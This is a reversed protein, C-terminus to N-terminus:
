SAPTTSSWISTEGASTMRGASTVIARTREDLRRRWLRAPCHTASGLLPYLATARLSPAHARPLPLAPHIRELPALRIELVRSAVGAARACRRTQRATRGSRQAHQHARKSRAAHRAAPAARHARRRAHATVEVEIVDSHEDLAPTPLHALGCTSCRKEDQALDSHEHVVPLDPRKTRGHEHSGPQQGRKRKAATDGRAGQESKLPSTKESKKGFLRNQLDKIKADKLPAEQRLKDIEAKARAHQAEWYSAPANFEIYEQKTLAVWQQLFPSAPEPEPEANACVLPHHTEASPSPHTTGEM